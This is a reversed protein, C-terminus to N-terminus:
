DEKLGDSEKGVAELATIHREILEDRNTFGTWQATLLERSKEILRRRMAEGADPGTTPFLEVKAGCQQCNIVYSPAQTLREVEAQLRTVEASNGALLVIMRCVLDDRHDFLIVLDNDREWEDVIKAVDRAAGEADVPACLDARQYGVCNEGDKTLSVYSLDVRGESNVELWITEPAVTLDDTM